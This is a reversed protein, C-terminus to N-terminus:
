QCEDRLKRLAWVCFVSCGAAIGTFVEFIIIHWWPMFWRVLM